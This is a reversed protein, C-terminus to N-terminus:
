HMHRTSCVWQWSENKILALLELHEPLLIFPLCYFCITKRSDPLQTAKPCVSGHQSETEKDSFYSFYTRGKTKLPILLFLVQLLSVLTGPLHYVRLWQPSNTRLYLPLCSLWLRSAFPKDTCLPAQGCIVLLCDCCFLVQPSMKPEECFPSSPNQQPVCLWVAWRSDGKGPQRFNGLNCGKPEQARLEKVQCGLDLGMPRWIGEGVLQKERWWDSWVTQEWKQSGHTRQAWTWGM